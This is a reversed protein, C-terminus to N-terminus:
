VLGADQSLLYTATPILRWKGNGLLELVSDHFDILTSRHCVIIVALDRDELLMYLHKEM